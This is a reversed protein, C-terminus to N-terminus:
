DLQSTKNDVLRSNDSNSFLLRRLFNVFKRLIKNQYRERMLILKRYLYTRWVSNIHINSSFHAYHIYSFCKNFVDHICIYPKSTNKKIMSQLYASDDYVYRTGKENRFHREYDYWNGIWNASRWSYKNGGESIFEDLLAFSENCRCQHMDYICLWTDNRPMAVINFQSYTDYRQMQITKDASFIDFKHQVMYDLMRKLLTEDLIECDDDIIAFFDAKTKQFYYDWIESGKFMPRNYGSINGCSYNGDDLPIFDKSTKGNFDEFVVGGQIKLWNFKLVNRLVFGYKEHNFGNLVVRVNVFYDSAAVLCSRLLAPITYQSLIAARNGLIMVVELSKM